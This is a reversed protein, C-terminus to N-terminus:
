WTTMLQLTPDQGQPTDLDLLLSLQRRPDAPGRSTGGQPGESYLTCSIATPNCGCVIQMCQLGGYVCGATVFSPYGQLSFFLCCSGM